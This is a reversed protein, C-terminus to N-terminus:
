GNNKLAYESAVLEREERLLILEKWVERSWSIRSEQEQKLGM